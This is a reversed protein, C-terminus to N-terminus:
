YFMCVISFFVRVLVLFPHFPPWFLWWRTPVMIFITTIVGESLIQNLYESMLIVTIDQWYILFLELVFLFADLTCKSDFALSSKLFQTGSTVWDTVWFILPSALVLWCHSNLILLCSSNQHFKFVWNACVIYFRKLDFWFPWFQIPSKFNLDVTHIWFWVNLCSSNQHFKSDSNARVILFVNLILDFSDFNSQHNL